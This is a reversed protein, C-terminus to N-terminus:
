YKYNGGVKEYTFTIPINAVSDDFTNKAYERYSDSISSVKTKIQNLEEDPINEPVYVVYVLGTTSGPKYGEKGDKEKYMEEKDQIQELIDHYAYGAIDDASKSDVCYTMGYATGSKNRGYLTNALIMQERDIDYEKVLHEDFAALQQNYYDEDSTPLVWYSDTTDVEKETNSEESQTTNEEVTASESDEAQSSGGQQSSTSITNNKVINTVDDGGLWARAVSEKCMNVEFTQWGFLQLVKMKYHVIIHVNEPENKSFLTSMKFNMGALGDVIGMRKLADNAETKNAGFHKITFMKALPAALVHSKILELGESGAVAVISRIYLLPNDGVSTVADEIANISTDINTADTKVSNIADIIAGIDPNGEEIANQINTVNQTSNDVATGVSKYLGDVTGIIDNINGAGEQGYATIEQDFKQLGSMKYFYSYQSIEKTATDIANSILMQVRCFNVINLITFIVFLFGTFSIAAEVTASANENRLLYAIKNKM